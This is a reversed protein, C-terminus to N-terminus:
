EKLLGAESYKNAANWFIWEELGADYVAKIQQRLQEPGYKQYNGKGIWSATFDQVYPRIEAKYGEVKEIRNKGKVLTNYVVGYPDLDPKLFKVGNVTQGLAYHSPYAMPSIYDMEMGITELNQGIAASDGTEGPSEFIIGFVDASLIVGPMEKRAYSLFENIAEYRPKDSNGFDANKIGDNPFRVYDFQIEDFGKNVAEKAVEILYPWSDKNYPNLWPKKHTDKWVGGNKDKVALDPRKASLVPDKFCVVRGIIHVNNDHFEKIVKDVDYKKTYAGLERVAAIGSEYGVLGDDDKVDIVYSNIETTNALEVYHSVNKAGGVTWGTLYLAKVKINSKGNGEKGGNNSDAVDTGPGQSDDQGQPTGGSGEPAQQTDPDASVGSPNEPTSASEQNGNGSGLKDSSGCGTLLIGATVMLIIGCLFVKGSRKSLGTMMHSNVGAVSKKPLACLM